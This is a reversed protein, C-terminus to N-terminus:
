IYNFRFVNGKVYNIGSGQFYGKEKWDNQLMLSIVYVLRTSPM